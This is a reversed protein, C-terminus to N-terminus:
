KLLKKISKDIKEQDEFSNHVVIPKKGGADIKPKCPCDFDALDAHTSNKPFGHPNIDSAPVVHIISEDEIVTWKQKDKIKKEM